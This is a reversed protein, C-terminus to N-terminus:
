KYLILKGNRTIRLRYVDNGHQILVESKQGLLEATTWTVRATDPASQSGPPPQAPEPAPTFVSEAM